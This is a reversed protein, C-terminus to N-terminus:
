ANVYWRRTHKDYSLRGAKRMAQLRRDILRWTEGGTIQAAQRNLDANYIPHTTASQIHRCIANDLETYDTM